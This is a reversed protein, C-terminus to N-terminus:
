YASSAPGGQFPPVRGVTAELLTLEADRHNLVPAAQLLPSRTDTSITIPRDHYRTTLTTAQSADALPRIEATGYCLCFYVQTDQAEIYCATGRIGVTATATDIRKTGPGFVSLVKGTVVRMVSVAGDMLFRVQSNDRMLYANNAMVYLVESNAGTAITDGQLVAQDVRAPSGNLRVDGKIRRIGSQLPKQGMALADALGAISGLGLTTSIFRRRTSM